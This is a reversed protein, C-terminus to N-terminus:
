SLHDFVAANLFKYQLISKKLIQCLKKLGGEGTFARDSPMPRSSTAEWSTSKKLPTCYMDVHPSRPIIVAPPAKEM